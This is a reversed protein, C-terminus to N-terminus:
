VAVPVCRYDWGSLHPMHQMSSQVKSGPALLHCAPKM